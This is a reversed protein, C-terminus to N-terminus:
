YESNQIRYETYIANEHTLGRRGVGAREDGVDRKLSISQRKGVRHLPSRPFYNMKM